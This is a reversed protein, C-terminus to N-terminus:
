VLRLEKSVQAVEGLRDFDQDLAKPTAGVHGLNQDPIWLKKVPDCVRLNEPMGARLTLDPTLDYSSRFGEGGLMLLEVVQSRDLPSFHQMQANTIQQPQRCHFNRPRSKGNERFG